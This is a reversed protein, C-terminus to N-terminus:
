FKKEKASERKAWLSFLDINCFKKPGYNIFPDILGKWGLRIKTTFALLRVKQACFGIAL